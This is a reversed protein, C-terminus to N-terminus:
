TYANQPDVYYWYHSPHDPPQPECIVVAGRALGTFGALAAAAALACLLGQPRKRM